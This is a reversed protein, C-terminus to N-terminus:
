MKSTLDDTKDIMENLRKTIRKLNEALDDLAKVQRGFVAGVAKQADADNDVYNWFAPSASGTEVLTVFEKHYEPKILRLETEYKPNVDERM